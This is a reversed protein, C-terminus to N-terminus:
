IRLHNFEVNSSNNIKYSIYTAIGRTVILMSIRVVLVRKGM